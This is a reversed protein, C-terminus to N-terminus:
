EDKNTGSLLAKAEDIDKQAKIGDILGKAIFLQHIPTLESLYRFTELDDTSIFCMNDKRTNELIHRAIGVLEAWGFVNTLPLAM